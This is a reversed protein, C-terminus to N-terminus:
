IIYPVADAPIPCVYEGGALRDAFEAKAAEIISVDEFLDSAACALVKAAYIMGKDGITSAGCSVNQWSHGPSHATFCVTNFQAAPTQWSVDGVDTSGPEFENGSYFPMLFDNLYKTGGDSLERVKERIGLDFKAGTGPLEVTEPCAADLEKAFALEEETYELMPVYEMNEYLLKELTTNPVTNATGDVFIREFNTGTMIAAGKACADVREQLELTDKVQVARVM